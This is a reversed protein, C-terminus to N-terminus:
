QNVPVGDLGNLDFADGNFYPDHTKVALPSMEATTLSIEGVVAITATILHGGVLHFGEAPSLAMSIHCHPLPRSAGSPDVLIALNCVLSTVEHADPFVPSKDMKRARLNYQGLQTNSVNGIGTATAFSFGMAKQFAALSALIEQGPTLVLLYGTSTRRYRLTKGNEAQVTGYDISDSARAGAVLSPGLTLALACLSLFAIPKKM